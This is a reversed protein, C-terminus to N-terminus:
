EVTIYHGSGEDKSVPEFQAAMRDIVPLIDVDEFEEARAKCIDASTAVHVFHVIWDQKGSAKWFRRREKTTNTADVIVMKHGAMFLARVMTKAIAFVHEEAETVFRQGHLAYRIMDPSVIVAGEAMKKKAWTTKGSRPLGVMVFLHQDIEEM